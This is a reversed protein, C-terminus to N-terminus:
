KKLIKKVMEQNGSKIRMLYIGKNFGSMDIVPNTGIATQNHVLRGHIDYISIEPDPHPLTIYLKNFIPNPFSNVDAAFDDAVSVDDCNVAGPGKGTIEAVTNTIWLKDLKTGDERYAITLTHSGTDLNFSSPFAAWTWTASSAISNWSDFSGNDMRVWFSDENPGPCIVRAFLSYEGDEVIDFTFTLHGSESAPASDTSNNGSQITVYQENSANEDGEINWLGGINGCEAELWIGSSATIIVIVEDTATQGEENTVTLTFVHEGLSLDVTPQVGTAIETNNESWVYSTISGNPDKSGSADLLVSETGDNGNDWLTQDQGAYATLVPTKKIKLVTLNRAGPKANVTNKLRFAVIEDFESDGKIDVSITKTTEGPQFSITSSDFAFDEESVADGAVPVIDVTIEKTSPKNLKLDISAQNRRDAVTIANEFFVTFDATQFSANWGFPTKPYAAYAGLDLGNDGANKAPSSSQLTFNESGATTNSFLPNESLGSTEGIASQFESVPVPEGKYEISATTNDSHWLNNRFVHPANSYAEETFKLNYGTNNYAINNRFEDRKSKHINFGTENNYAVNNIWRPEITWGTTEYYASMFGVKMNISINEQVINYACRSENFINGSGTDGYNRLVVNNSGDRDLWVHHYVDEAYNFAIINNGNSMDQVDIARSYLYSGGWSRLKGKFGIFTNNCILNNTSQQSNVNIGDGYINNFYNNCVVNGTSNFLAVMQNGDWSSVESNGLNEFRNNIVVNGEGSSIYISAKGYNFDKFQLGEIRIFDKNSLLFVPTNDNISTGPHKLIVDGTGPLPKFVIMANETGSSNPTINEEFYIGAEILVTDGPSVLTAAKSITEFPSSLSGAGSDNGSGSVYYNTAFVNNIIFLSVLLTFLHYKFSFISRIAAM